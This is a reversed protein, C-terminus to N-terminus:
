HTLKAITVFYARTASPCRSFLHVDRVKLLFRAVPDGLPVCHTRFIGIRFTDTPLIVLFLSPTLALTDSSRVAPWAVGELLQDLSIHGFTHWDCIPRLLWLRAPLRWCHHLLRWCHHLLRWCHHLLRIHLQTQQARTIVPLRTLVVASGGGSRVFLTLFCLFLNIPQLGVSGFIIVSIYVSLHQLNMWVLLVANICGDNEPNNTVQAYKGIFFFLFVDVCM